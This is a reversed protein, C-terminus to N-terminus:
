APPAGTVCEFQGKKSGDPWNGDLRNTLVWEDSRACKPICGCVIQAVRGVTSAGQTVSQCGFAYPPQCSKFSTDEDRQPIVKCEGNICNIKPPCVNAGDSKSICPQMIQPCEENTTCKELKLCEGKYGVEIDDLKAFCSNSYTKGNKGCVPLYTEACVKQESPKLCDFGTACGKQDRQVKIIGNRCFNVVPIVQPCNNEQNKETAKKILKDNVKGRVNEKIDELKQQTPKPMKEKIRDLIGSSGQSQGGEDSNILANEIRKVVKDNNSELKTMVDKFKELHQERADKIKQLVDAPVQTELKQLIKEQLVQQNAFKDLFKGVETNNAANNKIKDAQEKIKGMTKQYKDTAKELIDSSAKGEEVLKKLEILKENAFKQELETKKLQGFTFFSQVGRGWEKLFYLPSGPLIKPNTVGLDQALVEPQDIAPTVASDTQAMVGSGTAILILASANILIFKTTKKM